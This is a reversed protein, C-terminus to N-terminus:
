KWTLIEGQGTRKFYRNAVLVIKEGQVEASLRLNQLGAGELQSALNGQAAKNLVIEGANLGAFGGAGGDIMAPINDGSYSNGKVIGGQAYGTQSHIQAITTAMSVMSAASAAIFGWINFKSTVDKALADSYALAINAIAQAVVGAVKAAPDEIANFAQGITGVVDATTNITKKLKEVQNVVNEIKGTKFNIQIPEINLEKLKENITDMMGQWTSGPINDGNIIQKWIDANDIAINSMGAKLGEEILTKYANADALRASISEFAASGIDANKLENQINSIVNGINNETPRSYQRNKNGTVVVEGIEGAEFTKGHAMDKLKAIEENRKQLVEIEREIAQRREDSAKIYENTLKEIQVNNIQEETQEKASDGGRRSGGTGGGGTRSGGGNRMKIDHITGENLVKMVNDWAQQQMEAAKKMQEASAVGSAALKDYNM